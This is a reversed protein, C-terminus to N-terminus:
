EEVEKGGGGGVVKKGEREGEMGGERWRGTETGRRERQRASERV